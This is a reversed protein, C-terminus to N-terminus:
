RYLGRREIYKRVQKPLIRDTPKGAALLERATTSSVGDVRAVWFVELNGADMMAKLRDYAEWQEFGPRIDTGLVLVIQPDGRHRSRLYELTDATLGRKFGDIYADEEVHSVTLEVAGIRNSALPAMAARTMEVRDEYPALPKGEPHRYAPAVVLEDIDACQMAYLATAAHSVHPPNFSGGYFGVRRRTPVPAIGLRNRM